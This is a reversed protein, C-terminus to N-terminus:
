MVACSGSCHDPYGYPGRLPLDTRMKDMKKCIVMGMDGRLEGPADNTENLPSSLEWYVPRDHEARRHVRRAATRPRYPGANPVSGGRLQERVDPADPQYPAGAGPHAWLEPAMTNRTSNPVHYIRGSRCNCNYLIVDVSAGRSLCDLCARGAHGPDYEERNIRILPNDGMRAFTLGPNLEAWAGFGDQIAQLM